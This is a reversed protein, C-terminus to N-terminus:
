GIVDLVAQMITFVNGANAADWQLTVTIDEAVTTDVSGTVPAANVEETGIFGEVHAAYTGSAGITRITIWADSRFHDDTVAKATMAVTILTTGGMKFRLTYFQSANATTTKGLLTVRYMKGAKLENAAVASTHITTETTTNTVTDSTVRVSNGLVMSRRVGAETFYLTNGDFEMDGSAPTTKLVGTAINIPARTTTGAGTNLALVILTDDTKLTDAASRYLTVDTGFTIGGTATGGTDSMQLAYNATAGGSPAAIRLGINTAARTLAAVDVGILTTYTNGSAPNSVRYLVATTCTLGGNDAFNATDYGVLTTVTCATTGSPRAYARADFCKATTVAVTAASSSDVLCGRTTVATSTTLTGDGRITNEFYGGELANATIGTGPNIINRFYLARYTASSNSAPTCTHAYQAMSDAGSATATNTVSCRMLRGGAGTTTDIGLSLFAGVTLSGTATSAPASTSGVRLYTGVRENTTVLTAGVTLTDTTSNFSIGANDETIVDGAGVFLVSGTTFATPLKSADYALSTWATVGDGTKTLGTDTELGPEGPMLIPNTSTWLAATGRRYRVIDEQPM